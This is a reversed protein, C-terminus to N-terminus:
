EDLNTIFEVIQAGYKEADEGETQVTIETGTKLGATLIALVGKPNIKTEGKILHIEVPMGACLQALQSAPRAHLGTPNTITIKQRFM